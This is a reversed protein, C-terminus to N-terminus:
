LLVRDVDDAAKSVDCLINVANQEVELDVRDVEDDSAIVKRALELDRAFISDFAHEVMERVLAGQTVLSNRLVDIRDAFPKPTSSM